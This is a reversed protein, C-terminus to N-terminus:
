FRDKKNGRGSNTRDMASAWFFLSIWFFVAFFIQLKDWLRSFTAAIGTFRQPDKGPPSPPPVLSSRLIPRNPKLPPGPFSRHLQIPSSPSRNISSPFNPPLSLLPSRFIPFFVWNSYSSTPSLFAM